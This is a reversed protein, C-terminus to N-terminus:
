GYRRKWDRVIITEENWFRIARKSDKKRPGSRGCRCRVQLLIDDKMPPFYTGVEPWRRCICREIEPTNTRKNSM